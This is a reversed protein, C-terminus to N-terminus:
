HVAIVRSRSLVEIGLGAGLGALLGIGGTRLVNGQPLRAAAHVGGHMWRVHALSMDKIAKRVQSVVALEASVSGTLSGHGTVQFTHGNLVRVRVRPVHQSRAVAALRAADHSHAPLTFETTATYSSPGATAAYAVGAVLGLFGLLVVASLKKPV